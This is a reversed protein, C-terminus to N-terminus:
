LSFAQVSAGAAAALFAALTEGQGAAESPVMVVFHQDLKQEVLPQLLRISGIRQMPAQGALGARPQEQPSAALSCAGGGEEPPQLLYYLEVSTGRGPEPVGQRGPRVSPPGFWAALPQLQAVCLGLPGELRCGGRVEQTEHFAVLAVCPLQAARTRQPGVEQWGPLLAGPGQALQPPGAAQHHVGAAELALVPTQWAQQIFFAETRAQLSANRMVDQNAEQLFFAAEANLIRYTVPLYVP